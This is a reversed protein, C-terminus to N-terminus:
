PTVWVPDIKAIKAIETHSVGILFSSGCLSRLSCLPVSSWSDMPDRLGSRDERDGHTFSRDSFAIWVSIAFSPHNRISTTGVKRPRGRPQGRVPTPRDRISNGM